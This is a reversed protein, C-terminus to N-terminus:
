QLLVQAALQDVEDASGIWPHEDILDACPLVAGPADEGGLLDESM